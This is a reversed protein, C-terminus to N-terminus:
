RWGGGLSKYLEINATLQAQKLSALELEGELSNSQATIVELYTAMGNKFLQDANNIASHLTSVRTAAIVQQEKLKEIKVLADSVEGVANLVSSRFNIVAKERNVIALEYQTRLQRKQFIPQTIGGAVIGFLSAPVNFWNTAKFSNIGGQATIKLTPYMNAKTIGVEANAIDIGLEVSKVDPRRNLMEAPVGTATNEPVVIESLSVSRHITSPLVGTLISLANEQITIEQEFQPILQSALLRQADAQQIALATQEGANYELKIIQLTSDNLLVNKKAIRLQEDLMLLNYYSQAIGSVIGTQIAKKAEATQLYQALAIKKQNKIKGWIDAEWSLALNATYDEVHSQSLYQSLSKGNLSNNSYRSSAAAVNLSLDPLYAFKTQKLTLQAAEINKLAYQMDYNNVIASDILKQLSPETFFQKWGIDAISATDTVTANRFNEPLPAQPTDIDKSVKCGWFFMLPLLVFYKNLHKM